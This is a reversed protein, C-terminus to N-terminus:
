TFAMKELQFSLDGNPFADGPLNKETAVLYYSTRVRWRLISLIACHTGAVAHKVQYTGTTSLSSLVKKNNEGSPVISIL